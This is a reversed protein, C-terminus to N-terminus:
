EIILPIFFGQVLRVFVAIAYIAVFFKGSFLHNAFIYFLLNVISGTIFIIIIEKLIM